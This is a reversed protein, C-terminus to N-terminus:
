ILYSPFILHSATVCDVQAGSNDRIVLHAADNIPTTNFPFTISETDDHVGSRYVASSSVTAIADDLDEGLFGLEKRKPEPIYGRLYVFFVRDSPFTLMIVNFLRDLLM